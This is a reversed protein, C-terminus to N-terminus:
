VTYVEQGDKNFKLTLDQAYLADTVKKISDGFMFGLRVEPYEDYESIDESGLSVLKDVGDWYTKETSNQLLEFKLDTILLGTEVVFEATPPLPKGAAPIADWDEGDTNELDNSFLFQYLNEGRWNQGIYYIYVLGVEDM